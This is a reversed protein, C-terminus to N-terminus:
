MLSISVQDTDQINKELNKSKKRFLYQCVIQNTTYYELVSLHSLQDLACSQFDHTRYDRVMLEFRM